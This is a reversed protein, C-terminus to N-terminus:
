MKRTKGQGNFLVKNMPCWHAHVLEDRFLSRHGKEWLRGLKHILVGQAGCALCEGKGLTTKRIVKHPSLAFIVKDWDRAM